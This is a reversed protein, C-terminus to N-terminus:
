SSLELCTQLNYTLRGKVNDNIMDEQTLSVFDMEPIVQFKGRFENTFDPYILFMLIKQRPINSSTLLTSDLVQDAVTHQSSMQM